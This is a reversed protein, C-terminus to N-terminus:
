TSRHITPPGCVPLNSVTGLTVATTQPQILSLLWKAVNKLSLMQGAAVPTPAAIGQVSVVGAQRVQLLVADVKLLELAHEHQEKGPRTACM